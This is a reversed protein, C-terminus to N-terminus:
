RLIMEPQSVAIDVKLRSGAAVQVSKMDDSPIPPSSSPYYSKPVEGGM